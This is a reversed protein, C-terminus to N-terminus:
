GSKWDFAASTHRACDAWAGGDLSCAGGAVTSAGHSAQPLTLRSKKLEAELKAIKNAKRRILAAAELCVREWENPIQWAIYHLGDITDTDHRSMSRSMSDM